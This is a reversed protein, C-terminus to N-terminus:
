DDKYAELFGPSAGQWDLIPPLLRLQAERQGGATPAAHVAERGRRAEEGRAFQVIQIPLM